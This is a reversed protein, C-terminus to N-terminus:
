SLDNVNEREANFAERSISLETRAHVNEPSDERGILVSAASNSPSNLGTGFPISPSFSQSLFPILFVSFSSLLFLSALPLVARVDTIEKPPDNKLSRQSSYNSLFLAVFASTPLRDSARRPSFASTSTAPLITNNLNSEAIGRSKSRGDASSSRWKKTGM